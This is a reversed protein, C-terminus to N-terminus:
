ESQEEINSEDAFSCATSVDVDCESRFALWFYPEVSLLFLQVLKFALWKQM